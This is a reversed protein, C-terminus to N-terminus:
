WVVGAVISTNLYVVKPLLIKLTVLGRSGKLAGFGNGTSAQLLKDGFLTELQLPTLGFDDRDRGQKQLIQENHVRVTPSEIPIARENTEFGSKLHPILAALHPAGSLFPCVEVTAHTGVLGWVFFPVGRGYRTDWGLKTDRLRM